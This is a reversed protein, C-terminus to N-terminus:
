DSLLSIVPGAFPYFILSHSCVFLFVLSGIVTKEIKTSRIFVELHGIHTGLPAVFHGYLGSWANIWSSYICTVVCFSTYLIDVSVHGTFPLLYFACMDKLQFSYVFHLRELPHQEAMVLFLARSVCAAAQISRLPM